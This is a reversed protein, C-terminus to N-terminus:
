SLARNHARVGKCLCQAPVGLWWGLALFLCSGCVSQYLFSGDKNASSRIISPSVTYLLWSDSSVHTETLNCFVLDIYLLSGYKWISSISFKFIGKVIDDFGTVDEPIFRAPYVCAKWSLFSVLVTRTDVCVDFSVSVVKPGRPSAVTAPVSHTGSDRPM